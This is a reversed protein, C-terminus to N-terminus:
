QEIRPARFHGNRLGHPSHCPQLRLLRPWHKRPKPRAYRPHAARRDLKLDALVITEGPIPRKSDDNSNWDPNNSSARHATYNKPETLGYPDSIRVISPQVCGTFTGLFALAAPLVLSFQKNM